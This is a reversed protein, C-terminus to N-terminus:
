TLRYRIDGQDSVFTSPSFQFSFPKEARAVPPVQSNLPLALRPNAMAYGILCIHIALWGMADRRQHMKM